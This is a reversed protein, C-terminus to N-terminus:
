REPLPEKSTTMTMRTSKNQKSRKSTIKMANNSRNIHGTNNNKKKKEGLQIEKSLKKQGIQEKCTVYSCYTKKKKWKYM